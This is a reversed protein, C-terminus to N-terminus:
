RGTTWTADLLSGLTPFPLRRCGQSPRVAYTPRSQKTSTAISRVMATVIDDYSVQADNRSRRSAQSLGSLSGAASRVSGTQSVVQRDTLDGGKLRQRMTLGSRCFDM